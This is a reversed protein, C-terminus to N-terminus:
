RDQEGEVAVPSYTFGAPQPSLAPESLLDKRTRPELLVVLLVCEFAALLYDHTPIVVLVPTAVLLLSAFWRARKWESELMWAMPVLLLVADYLHGHWSVLQTVIVGLCFKQIRPLDLWAVYAVLATSIAIVWGPHNGGFLIGALGRLNSLIAPNEKGDTIRTMAIYQRVGQAGIMAASLGLIPISAAIFGLLVRWHRFCLIVVLPVIFPFKILGLALIAGASLDRGWAFQDFAIAAILVLIATDQGNALLSLTPAFAIPILISFSPFHRQLVRAGALLCGLNFLSWVAYAEVQPLFSLPVLLVAEFPPHFFYGVGRNDPHFRNQLQLNYLQSIDYRALKAAGYFAPFGGPEAFALGQFSLVFLSGFGVALLMVLLFFAQREASTERLNKHPM